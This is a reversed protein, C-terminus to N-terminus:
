VNEMKLLEAFTASDILLRGASKDLILLGIARGVWCAHLRASEAAGRPGRRGDCKSALLWM